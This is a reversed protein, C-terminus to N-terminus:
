PILDSATGHSPQVVAFGPSEVAPTLGQTLGMAHHLVAQDSRAVEYSNLPCSETSTM